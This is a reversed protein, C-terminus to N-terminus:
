IADKINLKKWFEVITLEPDDEASTDALLLKKM